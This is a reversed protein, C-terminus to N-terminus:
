GVYLRLYILLMVWSVFGIFFGIIIFLSSIAEDWGLFIVPILVFIPWATIAFVIFLLEIFAFSLAWKELKWGEERQFKEKDNGKIFGWSVLKSNTAYIKDFFKLFSKAFRRKSIKMEEQPHLSGSNYPGLDGPGISDLMVYDYM